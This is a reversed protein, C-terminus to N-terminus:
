ARSPRSTSSRSRTIRSRTSTWSTPGPSRRTSASRSRSTRPRRGEV